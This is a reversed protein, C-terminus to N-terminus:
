FLIMWPVEERVILLWDLETDGNNKRQWLIKLMNHATLINGFSITREMISPRSEITLRDGKHISSAGAMFLPFLFHSEMKSAPQIMSAASIIMDIAQQLKSSSVNSREVKQLTAWQLAGAAVIAERHDLGL